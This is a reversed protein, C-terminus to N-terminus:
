VVADGHTEEDAHTTGLSDEEPTEPTEVATAEEEVVMRVTFENPIDKKQSVAFSLNRFNENVQELTGQTITVEGGHQALVALLTAYASRGLHSMRRVQRRLDANIRRVKRTHKSTSARGDRHRSLPSM